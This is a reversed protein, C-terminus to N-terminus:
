RKAEETTGALLEARRKAPLRAFALAAADELERRTAREQFCAYTENPLRPILEFWDLPLWDLEQKPLTRRVPRPDTWYMWRTIKGAERSQQGKESYSNPYCGPKGLARYGEARADGREQLWDAFVLRTQWDEPHADLARQFDDETTM